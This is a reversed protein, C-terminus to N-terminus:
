IGYIDIIFSFGQNRQSKLHIKAYTTQPGGATLFAYGGNGDRIQDTIVIQTITRALKKQDFVYDRTVVRLFKSKETIIERRLHMDRYSRAGWTISHSRGRGSAAVFASLSIVLLIVSIKM